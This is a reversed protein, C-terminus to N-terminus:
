IDVKIIIHTDNESEALLENFDMGPIERGELYLRIAEEAQVALDEISDGATYCGKLGLVEGSCPSFSEPDDHDVAIIFHRM